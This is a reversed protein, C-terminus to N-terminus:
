NRRSAYTRAACSHPRKASGARSSAPPAGCALPERLDAEVGFFDGSLQDMYDCALLHVTADQAPALQELRELSLQNESRPDVDAVIISFASM